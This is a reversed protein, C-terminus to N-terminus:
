NDMEDRELEKLHDLVDAVTKDGDLVEWAAGTRGDLRCIGSYGCYDCASATGLRYPRLAIDGGAIRRIATRVIAQAYALVGDFEERTLKGTRAGKKYIDSSRGGSDDLATMLRADDLFLGNMKFAQDIQKQLEAPDGFKGSIMPDDVHFYFTGGPICATQPEEMLAMGEDLYILLQISLGYYIESMTIDRNGTKYDIIKVFTDGERTYTDIRDVIGRVAAGGAVTGAPLAREFRQESTRFTFGGQRLHGCIVRLTQKCVRRLKRGLFRTAGTSEFVQYHTQPLCASVVEDVLAERGADDIDELPQGLKRARRFVEDLVEHVLSGIDPADVAYERRDEPKLGYTVFHAFPCAEYLEIRSVSTRIPVGYLERATDGALPVGFDQGRGAADLRALDEKFYDAALRYAPLEPAGPAPGEQRDRAEGRRLALDGLTGRTGTIWSLDGPDERGLYSVPVMDPFVGRLDRVLSSPRLSTGDSGNVSYFCYLREGVQSLVRYLAYQERTQRYLSDDQLTLGYDRLRVREADTLVAFRGTESPLIGENAGLIFLARVGKGRGRLADTISLVRRREPLVGVSYTALGSELVDIFEDLGAKETGLATDIQGFVDMLCNWIQNSRALSEYDGAAELEGAMADLRANVQIDEMFAMLALIRQRYTRQGAVAGKLRVLPAIFRSRSGNLVGLDWPRDADNRTFDGEWQRGKVGFLIAYNELDMWQDRSLGAFGSKGYAFLADRRYNEASCALAALVAEVLPHDVVPDLRDQFCPIGYLAMARAVTDGMAEPNGVLVAMEDLAYGDDRLLGTIIRAARVSEDWLDSCEYLRISAPNGRWPCPRYSFLEQELHDLPRAVTAPKCSRLLELHQGTRHAMDEFRDRTRRLIDFVSADAAGEDGDGNLTMTIEAARGALAEIVAFDGASFTFFGDLWIRADKILESQGIKECLLASRDAGDLRDEGLIAGYHRYIALADSLKGTLLAGEGSAQAAKELAEGDVGNEKLEDIFAAMDAVFGKRGVSKKYVTLEDQATLISKALLMRQGHGDVVPVVAGGVETFVRDRLRGLSLVDVGMLGPLGTEDLLAKEAGLTFQEPVILFLHDEGRELCDAIERYVRQSKTMGRREQRGMWLRIAM